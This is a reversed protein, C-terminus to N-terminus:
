QLIEDVWDKRSGQGFNTFVVVTTNKEPFYICNADVGPLSGNKGYGPVQYNDWTEVGLGYPCKGGECSDFSQTFKMEELTAPQLLNGTFLARFFICLEEARSVIGGAPDGDSDSRDWLTLETLVGNKRGYGRAISPDDAEALYTDSLGLPGTIYAALAENYTLGTVKRIVKGLLWYGPNSYYSTTGPAAVQNKGYIYKELKLDTGMVAMLEPQNLLQLQYSLNDDSPQSLGSSHNLLMRITIESADSIHDAMEPLHDVLKDELSLLGQDKLQLILVATFMKSISGTRFPTCTQMRSDISLNAMGTAGAWFAEGGKDVALIAGPLNNDAVYNELLESYFAHSAHDSFDDGTCSSPTLTEEKQCSFFLSFIAIFLVFNNKM